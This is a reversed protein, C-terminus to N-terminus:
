PDGDRLGLRRKVEALARRSVQARQGDSLELVAAGDRQHLTRVERLNVLESRHVRLFALGALRDELPTGKTWAGSGESLTRRKCTSRAFSSRLTWASTQGGRLPHRRPRPWRSRGYGPGAVQGRPWTRGPELHPVNAGHRAGPREEREDEETRGRGHPRLDTDGVERRQVLAM